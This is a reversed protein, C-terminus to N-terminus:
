TPSPRQDGVVMRAGLVEQQAPQGVPDGVLSSGSVPDIRRRVNGGRVGSTRRALQNTTILTM